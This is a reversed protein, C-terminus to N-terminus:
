KKAGASTSILRQTSVGMHSTITKKVDTTYFSQIYSEYRKQEDLNNLRGTKAYFRVIFPNAIPGMKYLADLLVDRNTTDIKYTPDALHKEIDNVNFYDVVSCGNYDQTLVDIKNNLLLQIIDPKGSQFAYYLATRNMFDKDDISEHKLLWNVISIDGNACAIMLPTTDLIWRQHFTHTLQKLASLDKKQLPVIWDTRINSHKNSSGGQQVSSEKLVKLFKVQETNYVIYETGTRMFQGDKKGERVAIVSDYKRRQLEMHIMDSDMEGYIKSFETRQNFNKIYLPKGMYVENELIIGKRLAKINTEEATEAFYIGAGYMGKSGALFWYENKHSQEIMMAIESTTQHYGLIVNSRWREIIKEKKELLDVVKKFNVYKALDVMSIGQTTYPVLVNYDIKKKGITNKHEFTASTTILYHVAEYNKFLIAYGLPPIGYLDDSQNLEDLNLKSSYRQLEEKTRLLIMRQHLSPLQNIFGEFPVHIDHKRKEFYDFKVYEWIDTVKKDKTDYYISMFHQLSSINQELQKYYDNDRQSGYNVKDMENLVCRFQSNKKFPFQEIFLRRIEIDMPHNTQQIRTELQSIFESINKLYMTYEFRRSEFSEMHCPKMLELSPNLTLYPLIKTVITRQDEVNFEKFYHFFSYTTTDIIKDRHIVKYSIWPDLLQILLLPHKSDTLYYDIFTSTWLGHKLLTSLLPIFREEQKIKQFYIYLSSDETHINKILKYIFESTFHDLTPNYDALIDIIEMDFSIKHKLLDMLFPVYFTVNKTKIQEILTKHHIDKLEKKFPHLKKFNEYNEMNDINFM